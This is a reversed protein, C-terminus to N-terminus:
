AVNQELFSLFDSKKRGGSYPVKQGDKELVFTPYGSVQYNAAVEPEEEPNVYRFAVSRGGITATSGLAEFEPKASVCHPCWPVGLM